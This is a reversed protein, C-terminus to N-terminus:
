RRDAYQHGEALQEPTLYKMRPMRGADEEREVSDRVDEIAENDMQIVDLDDPRPIAPLHDQEPPTLKGPYGFITAFMQEFLPHASM